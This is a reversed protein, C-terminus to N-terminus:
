LVGMKILCYVDLIIVCVSLIVVIKQFNTMTDMWFDVFDYCYNNNGFCNRMFDSRIYIYILDNYRM